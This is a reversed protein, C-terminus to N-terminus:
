DEGKKNNLRRSRKEEIIKLTDFILINITDYYFIVSDKKTYSPFSDRTRKVQNLEEELELIHKEMTQIKSYSYEILEYNKKSNELEFITKKLNVINNQDKNNNSNLIIILSDKQKEKQTNHKVSEVLTDLKSNLINSKEEIHEHTFNITNKESRVDLRDFIIVCIVILLFIFSILKTM